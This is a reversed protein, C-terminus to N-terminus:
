NLLSGILGHAIVFKTISMHCVPGSHYVVLPDPQLWTCLAGDLVLQRQNTSGAWNGLVQPPALPANDAITVRMSRRRAVNFGLCLANLLVLTNCFTFTKCAASM